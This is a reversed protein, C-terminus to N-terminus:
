EPLAEIGSLLLGLSSSGYTFKGVLDKKPCRIRIFRLTRDDPANLLDEMHLSDYEAAEGLGKEVYRDLDFVRM